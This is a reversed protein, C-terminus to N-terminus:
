SNSAGGSTKSTTKSAQLQEAIQQATQELKATLKSAAEFTTAVDKDGNPPNGTLAFGVADTWPSWASDNAYRFPYQLIGTNNMIPDTWATLDIHGLLRPYTKLMSSRWLAAMSKQPPIDTGQNNFLLTWFEESHGWLIVDWCSDPHKTTSVISWPQTALSSATRAPGAPEPATGWNFSSGIAQAYPVLSYSNQRITAMQGNSFSTSWNMLHGPMFTNDVYRLEQLLTEAAVIQPNYNLVMPNNVPVWETGWAPAAELSLSYMDGGTGWVHSAPDVVQLCMARYDDWTYGAAPPAVHKSKFMDANYYVGAPCAKYALGPIPGDPIRQGAALGAPFDAILAKGEPTNVYPTLDLFAKSYWLSMVIMYSTTFFDPAKGAVILTTLINYSTQPNPQDVEIHPYARTFAKGIEAAAASGAQVGPFNGVLRVTPHVAPSATSKSATTSTPTSASPHGCAVLAMGGVAAAGYRLMDRRTLAGRTGKTRMGM